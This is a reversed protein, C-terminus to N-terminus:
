IESHIIRFSHNTYELGNEDLRITRINIMSNFIDQPIVSLRNRQLNLTRVERCNEFDDSHLNEINNGSLDIETAADAINDPINVLYAEACDVLLGIDSKLVSM